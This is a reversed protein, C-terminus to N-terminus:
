LRHLKLRADQNTFRWNITAQEANRRAQYAAVECKLTAEDPIRRDLCLGQLMSLEIAAM